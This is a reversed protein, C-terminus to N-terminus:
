SQESSLYGPMREANEEALNSASDSNEVEKQISSSCSTALGFSQLPPRFKPETLHIRIYSEKLRSFGPLYFGKLSVLPSILNAKYHLTFEDFINMM